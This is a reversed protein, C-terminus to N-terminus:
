LHWHFKFRRSLNEFHVWTAHFDTCYSGLQEMRVSLRTSMVFSTATQRIYLQVYSTFLSM